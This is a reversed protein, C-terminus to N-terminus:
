FTFPGSLAIPNTKFVNQSYIVYHPFIHATPPEDSFFVSQLIQRNGDYTPQRFRLCIATKRKKHCLFLSFLQFLMEPPIKLLVEVEISGKYPLEFRYSQGLPVGPSRTQMLASVENFVCSAEIFHFHLWIVSETETRGLAAKVSWKGPWKKKRKEELFKNFFSSFFCRRLLM